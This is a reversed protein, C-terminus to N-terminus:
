ISRSIDDTRIVDDLNSLKECLNNQINDLRNLAMSLKNLSDLVPLLLNNGDETQGENRTLDKGTEGSMPLSRPQITHTM